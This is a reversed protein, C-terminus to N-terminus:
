AHNSDSEDPETGLLEHRLKEVNRLITEKRKLSNLYALVEKRRSPTLQRWAEEFDANSSLAADLEEPVPLVRPAPDFEVSISVTDGVEVGAVKRMESNLFLRHRRGGLSVLGSRFDYGNLTGRVPIYGSRGLASSVERPVDVAPNIGIKEVTATFTEPM